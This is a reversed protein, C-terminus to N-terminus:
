HGAARPVFTLSTQQPVAVQAFFDAQFSTTGDMQSPMAADWFQYNPGAQANFIIGSLKHGNPEFTLASSDLIGAVVTSTGNQLDLEFLVAGDGGSHSSQYYCLDTQPDFVLNLPPANDFAYQQRFEIQMPQVIVVPVLSFANREPHITFVGFADPGGYIPGYGLAYIQGDSRRYTMSYVFFNPNLDQLQVVQGNSPNFTAVTTIKLPPGDLMPISTDFLMWILGDQLNYTFTYPVENAPPQHPAVQYKGNATNVVIFQGQANQTWLPTAAVAAGIPWAFVVLLMLVLLGARLRALIFM